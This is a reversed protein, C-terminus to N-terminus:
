QGIVPIWIGKNPDFRRVVRAPNGVAVSFSPIDKTVVSGAGVVSHEGIHVGPLIVCNSGIWVHEGIVVNRILFGQDRWNAVPDQYGHSEGSIFCHQSCASGCGFTVPGIVISGIGIGSREALIVDGHWTNVVCRKEIYSRRKLTLRYRGQDQSQPIVDLIASPSVSSPYERDLYFLRTILQIRVNNAGKLLDRLLCISNSRM